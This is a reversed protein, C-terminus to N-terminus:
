AISDTHRLGWPGPELHIATKTQRARPCLSRRHPRHGVLYECEFVAGFRKGVDHPLLGDRLCELVRDLGVADRMRIQQATTAPDALRRHGTNQRLRQVTSSGDVPLGAIRAFGADGDTPAATPLQADVLNTRSWELVTAASRRAATTVDHEELAPLVADQFREVARLWLSAALLDRSRFRHYISGSPAGLRDAVATMTLAAPGGESVVLGAATDLLQDADFKAPRPM